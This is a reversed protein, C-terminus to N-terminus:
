QQVVIESQEPPSPGIDIGDNASYTVTRTGTVVTGSPLYEFQIGIVAQEYDAESPTSGNAPSLTISTVPTNSNQGSSSAITAPLNTASLSDGEVPNSISVTVSQIQANSDADFIDIASLLNVAGGGITFTVSAIASGDGAVINPPSNGGTGGGIGNDDGNDGGDMDDTPETEPVRLDVDCENLPDTLTINGQNATDDDPETDSEPENVGATDTSDSNNTTDTSDSNTNDGNGGNGGSTANEPIVFRITDASYSFGDNVYLTATNNGASLQLDENLNVCPVDIDRVSDEGDIFWSYDLALPADDPDTSARPDLFFTGSTTIGTGAVARPASTTLLLQNKDIYVVNDILTFYGLGDHRTNQNFEISIQQDVLHHTDIFHGSFAADRRPGGPCGPALRIIATRYPQESVVEGEANIIKVVLDVPHHRPDDNMTESLASFVIGNGATFPQSRLTAISGTKGAANSRLLAAYNSTPDGNFSIATTDNGSYCTGKAAVTAFGGNIGGPIWGQFTGSEFDGDFLLGTQAFSAGPAIGLAASFIMKLLRNVVLRKKFPILPTLSTQQLFKRIM